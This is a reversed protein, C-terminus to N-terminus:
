RPSPLEKFDTCRCYREQQVSEGYNTFRSRYVKEEECVSWNGWQGVLYTESHKAPLIEVVNPSETTDASCSLNQGQLNSSKTIVFRAVKIDGMYEDVEARQIESGEDVKILTM